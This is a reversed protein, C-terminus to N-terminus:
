GHSTGGNFANLIQESRRDNESEPLGAHEWLWNMRGLDAMLIDAIETPDFSAACHPSGDCKISLVSDILCLYAMQLSQSDLNLFYCWWPWRQHLAKYFARVGPILYVEDPHTNYGDVLLVLSDLKPRLEHAWLQPWHGFIAEFRQFDLTEVEHRTFTHILLTQM